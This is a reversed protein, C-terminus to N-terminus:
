LLVCYKLRTSLDLTLWFKIPSGLYWSSIVKQALVKHKGGKSKDQVFLITTKTELQTKSGWLDIWM